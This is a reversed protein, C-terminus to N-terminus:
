TDSALSYPETAIQFPLLERNVQELLKSAFISRSKTTNCFTPFCIIAAQLQLQLCM